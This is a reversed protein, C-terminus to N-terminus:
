HHASSVLLYLDLFAFATTALVVIQVIWGSAGNRGGTPVRRREMGVNHTAVLRVATPGRGPVTTDHSRVSAIQPHTV